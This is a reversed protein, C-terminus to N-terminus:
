SSSLSASKKASGQVKMWLDRILLLGQKALEEHTMETHTALMKPSRWYGKPKAGDCDM